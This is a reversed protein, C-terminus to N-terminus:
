IALQFRTQFCHEHQRSFGVAIKARAQHPFNRLEASWQVTQNGRNYLLAQPFLVHSASRARLALRVPGKPEPHGKTSLLLFPVFTCSVSRMLRMWIEGVDATIASASFSFARPTSTASKPGPSGSKGVGSCMLFAAMLAMSSFLVFYVAVPPMRGSRSAM